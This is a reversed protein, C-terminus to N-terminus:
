DINLVSSINNLYFEEFSVSSKEYVKLMEVFKDIYMFYENQRNYEAQIDFLPFFDKNIEMFRIAFARVWYENIVAYPVNYSNLMNSHKDFFPKHNDLIQKNDEVIPNVFCHAFEHAVGKAFFEKEWTINGERDYYPLCRVVYSTNIEPKDLIFGYNGNLPCIILKFRHFNSSFYKEIKGIWKDYEWSKVMDVIMSYYNKQSLFFTQFNSDVIFRNVAIAWNKLKDSSINRELMFNKIDKYSDVDNLIEQLYLIARLPTIHTFWHNIILDKTLVVAEHAEFEKFYNNISIVYNINFIQQRTKEQMKALYLLVQILEVYKNIEVM